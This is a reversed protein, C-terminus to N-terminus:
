TFRQTTRVASQCRQCLIKCPVLYTGLLFIHIYRLIGCRPQLLVVHCSSISLIIPTCLASIDVFLGLFYIFIIVSTCREYSAVRFLLASTTTVFNCISTRTMRGKLPPKGSARVSPLSHSIHRSPPSPIIRPVFATDHTVSLAQRRCRTQTGSQGCGLILSKTTRRVSSPHCM